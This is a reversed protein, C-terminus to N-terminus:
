SQLEQTILWVWKQSEIEWVGVCPHEPKSFEKLERRWAEGTAKRRLKETEGDAPYARAFEYRVTQLLVGRVKTGDPFPNIDTGNTALANLLAKRLRSSRWKDKSAKKAQTGPQAQKETSQKGEADIPEIVCSTIWAGNPEDPDPRLQLVKLRSVFTSGEVMDKAFEVTATIIGTDDRKVAIQADAAGTQSTHGRPRKGDIGCHHVIIVLCGFAEEIAKAAKLYAAMDEDSSESGVLSRNMTDIVVCVPNTNQARIDATLQRHDKILNLPVGCFKFAQVIQDPKLFEKEFADRRDGFGSQGELALYVVEGQHVRHGRYDLGLAIHMVVDFVWFSKGCKPPGWVIVLGKRPFLGKVLYLATNSKLESFNLLKFRIPERDQGRLRQQKQPTCQLGVDDDDEDDDISDNLTFPHSRSRNAALTRDTVARQKGREFAEQVTAPAMGLKLADERLSDLAVSVDGTGDDGLMDLAAVGLEIALLQGYENNPENDAEQLKEIATNLARAVEPDRIPPQRDIM